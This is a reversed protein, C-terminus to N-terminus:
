TASTFAAAFRRLEAEDVDSVAQYYWGRAHWSAIRYGNVVSVDVPTRADTSAPTGAPSEWIWVNIVHERRKYVLAPVRRSDLVDLRGGVLIFGDAALDPVPPAIQVQGQFWPKVTHRDSSAVDILHDALLARMHNDVIERSTTGSAATPARPLLVAMALAAALALAAGGQKANHWWRTRRIGSRAEVSDRIRQLPAAPMFSLNAAAIERSLQEWKRATAACAPCGALHAEMGLSERLELEGDIHAHLLLQAEDCSM